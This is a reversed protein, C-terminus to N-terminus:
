SDNSLADSIMQDISPLDQSSRCAEYVSHEDDGRTYNILSRNGARDKYIKFCEVGRSTKILYIKNQGNVIQTFSDVLRSGKFLSDLASQQDSKSFQTAGKIMEIASQITDKSKDPQGPGGLDKDAIVSVALVCLILLFAPKM